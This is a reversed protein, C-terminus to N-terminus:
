PGIPAQPRPRVGYRTGEATIHEQRPMAAEEQTTPQRLAEANAEIMRAIYDVAEAVDDTLHFLDLDGPSITNYRECLTSRLWALAPTWFDRGILVAPCRPVKGTQLLTMIEFFEDLTGFGGPFFVMALGYKVFMVKRCFFYHFDMSTTQYPNAAQEHPLSINLGVSVGGAEFAGKNAAAMIGPGGGTIVDYGRQVLLAGLRQADRCAPHDLPFRASGFVSVARRVVALTEFAEVFEAMIRFIRWTEEHPPRYFPTTDAM